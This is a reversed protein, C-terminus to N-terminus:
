YELPLSFIVHEACTTACPYRVIHQVPIEVINCINRNSRIYNRVISFKIHGTITYSAYPNSVIWKTRILLLTSPFAKRIKFIAPTTSKVSMNENIIVVLWIEKPRTHCDTTDIRYFKIRIIQILCNARYSMMEAEVRFMNPFTLTFLVFISIHSPNFTWPNVFM